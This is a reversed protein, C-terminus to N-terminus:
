AMANGEANLILTLMSNEIGASVRNTSQHNKVKYCLAGEMGSCTALSAAFKEDETM